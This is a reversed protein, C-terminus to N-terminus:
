APNKYIRAPPPFSLRRDGIMDAEKSGVREDGRDTSWPKDIDTTM